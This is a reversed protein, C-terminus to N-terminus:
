LRNMRHHAPSSWRSGPRNAWHCHTREGQRSILLARHRSLTVGPNQPLGPTRNGRAVRGLSPPEPLAQEPAVGGALETDSQGASSGCLLLTSRASSRQQYEERADAMGLDSWVKSNEHPLLLTGMGPAQSRPKAGSRCTEAGAHAAAKM